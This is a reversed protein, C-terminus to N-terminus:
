RARAGTISRTGCWSNMNAVFADGVFRFAAPYRTNQGILVNATGDGAVVVGPILSGRTYGQPTPKDTSVSGSIVSDAITMEITMTSACEAMPQGSGVWKGDYPGAAHANSVVLGILGGIVSGKM